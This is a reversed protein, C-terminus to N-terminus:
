FKLLHAKRYRYSIKLFRQWLKQDLSKEFLKARDLARLVQRRECAAFDGKGQFRTKEKQNKKEKALFSSFFFIARLAFLEGTVHGICKAAKRKCASPVFPTNSRLVGLAGFSFATDTPEM